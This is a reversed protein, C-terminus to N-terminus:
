NRIQAMHHLSKSGNVNNTKESINLWLNNFHEQKIINKHWAKAHIQSWRLTKTKRNKDLRLNNSPKKPVVPFANKHIETVHVHVHEHQSTRNIIDTQTQVICHMTNKVLSCTQDQQKQGVLPQQFTQIANIPVPMKYTGAVHTTHWAMGAM